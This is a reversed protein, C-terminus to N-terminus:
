IFKIDKEIPSEWGIGFIESLAQDDYEAVCQEVWEKDGESIEKEFILTLRAKM